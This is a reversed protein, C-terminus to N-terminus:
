LQWFPITPILMILLLVILDTRLNNLIESTDNHSQECEKVNFKDMVKIKHASLNLDSIDPCEESVCSSMMHNELSDNSNKFTYKQKSGTNSQIKLIM